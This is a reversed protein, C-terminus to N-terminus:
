DTGIVSEWTIGDVGLRILEYSTIPSDGDFPAVWDIQIQSASTDDGRTLTVM